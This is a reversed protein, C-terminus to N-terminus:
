KWLEKQRMRASETLSVESLNSRSRSKRDDDSTSLSTYSSSSLPSAPRRRPSRNRKDKGRGRGRSSRRRREKRDSRGRHRRSSRRRSSRRRRSRKTSRSASPSGTRSRSSSSCSRSMCWCVRKKCGPVSCSRSRSRSREEPSGPRGYRAFQIRLPRGDFKRGNLALMADEADRVDYFRVFAFGRSEATEYDRPIYVDGIEGYKAFVENLSDATARYPLNDVKLSIMRKISLKSASNAVRFPEGAAM